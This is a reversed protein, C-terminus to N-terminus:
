EFPNWDIDEEAAENAAPREFAQSAVAKMLLSDLRAEDDFGNAEDSALWERFAGVTSSEAWDLLRTGESVKREREARAAAIRAKRDHERKRRRLDSLKKECAVIQDEITAMDTM